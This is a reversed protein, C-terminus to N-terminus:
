CWSASTRPKKWAPWFKAPRPGPSAKPSRACHALAIAKNMEEFDKRSGVYIGQIRAQKHLIAPSPCRNPLVPLAPSCASRPSSAAWAFPASRAPCPAWAAWKSWWTWARAAPRSWRGAIGTPTNRPLQPRRGSGTFPRTGAQRHSSSIGLVRAGMAACVSPRLHLGRRNGSDAGHSGAEPQRRGAREMRHRRRLAAHRSGAFSLHEPLRGPRDGQPRRVRGAHRRHRRGSRRQGQGPHAPWGALKAHLNRGRPRRTELRYCGRRRGCSRGRRRLLPHAAAENQPQLAGQGDASRSLQFFDRPRQVLVEGPGPHPTPREVFELSDVGFSSIQWVRM